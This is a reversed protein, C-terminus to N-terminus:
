LGDLIFDYQFVYIYQCLNGPNVKGFGVLINRDPQFPPYM